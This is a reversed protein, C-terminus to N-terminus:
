RKNVAPFEKASYFKLSPSKLSENSTTNSSGTTASSSSMSSDVGSNNRVINPASNSTVPSFANANKIKIISGAVSVDPSSTYDDDSDVAGGQILSRLRSALPTQVRKTQSLPPSFLRTGGATIPGTPTEPAHPTNETDEELLPVESIFREVFSWTKNGADSGLGTACLASTATGFRLAESILLGKSLAALFGSM